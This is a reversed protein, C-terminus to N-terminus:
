SKVDSIVYTYYAYKEEWYTVFSTLWHMTQADFEEGMALEADSHEMTCVWVGMFM